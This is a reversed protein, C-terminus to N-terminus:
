DIRLTLRSCKDRWTWKCQGNTKAGSQVCCYCDGYVLNHAALKEFLEHWQPIQESKATPDLRDAMLAWCLDNFTNESAETSIEACQKNLACETIRKYTEVDYVARFYATTNPDVVVTNGPAEFTQETGNHVFEHRKGAENLLGYALTFQHDDSKDSNEAFVTLNSESQRLRLIPYNSSEVFTEFIQESIPSLTADVLLSSIKENQICTSWSSTAAFSQIFREMAETGFAEEISAFTLATKITCEQEPKSPEILLARMLSPDNKNRLLKQKAEMARKNTPINVAELKSSLLWETYLSFGDQVCSDCISFMNSIWQQVVQRNLITHTLLYKPYEVWTEKLRILGLDHTGDFPLPASVLTLKNLPYEVGTLSSMRRLAADVELVLWRSESPQLHKGVLVELAPSKSDGHVSLLNDYLVFVFQDSRLAPSRQFCTQVSESPLNLPVTSPMNSRATMNAPHEVCPRWSSKAEPQDISPFVSRAGVDEFLTGLIWARQKEWKSPAQLVLGPNSYILTEFKAFYISLLTGSKIEDSLAVVVLQKEILRVIASVCVFRGSECDRVYVQAPNLNIVTRDLHLPIARSDATARVFIEMSVSLVRTEANSVTFNVDYHIPQVDALLDLTHNRADQSMWKSYVSLPPQSETLCKPLEVTNTSSCKWLGVKQEDNAPEFPLTTTPETSTLEDEDLSSTQIPQESPLDVDETTGSGELNDTTTSDATTSQNRLKQEVAQSRTGNKATSRSSGGGALVFIILAILLFTAIGLALLIRSRNTSLM